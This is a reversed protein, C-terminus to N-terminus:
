YIFILAAIHLFTTLRETVTQGRVLSMCKVYNASKNTPKNPSCNPKLNM